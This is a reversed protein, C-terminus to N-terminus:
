SFPSSRDMFTRLGPLDRAPRDNLEDWARAQDATLPFRSRDALARRASATLAEEAFQTLSGGTSAVARDVM